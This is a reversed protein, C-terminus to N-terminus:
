STWHSLLISLDFINVVGDTNVDSASDAGNWNAILISLDTINVLNDGNVDGPTASKTSASVSAASSVNGAADLAVVTYSYSTGASLGTDNYTLTSGSLNAVTSGNRAVRYGTVANNDSSATWSLAISTQTNGTTQFNGPASPASNDVTVSVASSTAVNAPSASDYAKATLSHTANTATTTDWSYAYPSTTDTSKLTGDVYFEVKAMGAGGTNDSATATFNVTGRLQSSATPATISVTPPTQDAVTVTIIASSGVNGSADTAKAQLTHSGLSVNSTNWNYTYPSSTDTGASVGDVLFEVSSVGGSDTATATVNVNSGKSVSSGNTPSTVSVTPAVTDVTYSGPGTASLSPLLNQNTSSSVLASGTTFTVNATGGTTKTKFTITAVLRDGTLTGIIGRGIKIQGNGGTSEAETTFASNSTNISVFDILTAPYSINAQVANVSSGGSDERVDVTFTTNPALTRTDPTLYITPAVPAALARWLFYGGILGFVVAFVLLQRQSFSSVKFPKVKTKTSM